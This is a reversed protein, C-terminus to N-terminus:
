RQSTKSRLLNLLTDHLENLMPDDSHLGRLADILEEVEAAEGKAKIEEAHLAPRRHRPHGGRRYGSLYFEATPLDIHHPLNCSYIDELRQTYLWTLFPEFLPCVWIRHRDLDASASGGPYFAAGEQTQLDMIWVMRQNYGIDQFLRGESVPSHHELESPTLFCLMFKGWNRPGNTAEIIHTRM